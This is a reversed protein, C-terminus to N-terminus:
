RFWSEGWPNTSLSPDLLSHIPVHMDQLASTINGSHDPIYGCKKKKIILAHTQGQAETLSDLTMKNELVAM